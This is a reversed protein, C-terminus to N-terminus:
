NNFFEKILRYLIILGHRKRLKKTGIRKKYSIPITKIKLRQRIVQTFLNMELDFNKANIKIKKLANKSFTWYGTCVDKPDKLCLIMAVFTLIKNGFYTSFPMVQKINKNFFRNGMVIDAENNLVPSVMNRIEKPDYTCDGDLMVYVDYKELDFRDLFTQFAMGKGRGDQYIVEIDCAPKNCSKAMNVTNDSSNGDIVVIDSVLPNPIGDIVKKISKEENLTPVIACVKM